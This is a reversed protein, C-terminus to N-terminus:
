ICMRENKNGGKKEDYYRVNQKQVIVMRVVKM